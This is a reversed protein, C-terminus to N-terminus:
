VGVSHEHYTMNPLLTPISMQARFMDHFFLIVPHTGPPSVSQEGLQMGVPLFLSVRDRPLSVTGGLMSGDGHLNVAAFPNRSSMHRGGNSPVHRHSSWVSIPPLARRSPVGRGPRSVLAAPDPSAPSRRSAGPQAAIARRARHAHAERRR